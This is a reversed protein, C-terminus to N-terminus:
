KKLARLQERLRGNETQVNNLEDMLMMSQSQESRRLVDVEERADDLAKKVEELKKELEMKAAVAKEWEGRLTGLDRQLAETEKRAKEVSADQHTSADAVKVSLVNNAEALQRCVEGQAELERELEEKEAKVREYMRGLEELEKEKDGGGSQSASQAENLRTGLWECREELMRVQRQYTELANGSEQALKQAREANKKLMDHSHAFRLLREILLRDDVLLSQVRTVFAELSFQTPASQAQLQLSKSDYLLKLSRVDLEAISKAQQPPTGPTSPVERTNGFFVPSGPTSNSNVSASPSTPGGQGPRFGRSQASMNARAARAEPSPLVAFIPQLIGIMKQAATDDAVEEQTPWVISALPNVPVTLSLPQRSPSQMMAAAASDQLDKVRVELDRVQVRLDERERRADELDRSLADRKDLSARVDEELKMRLMSWSASESAHRELKSKLDSLHADLADLMGSLLAHPTSTSVSTSSRTYPIPITYRQVIGTLNDVSSDFDTRLRDIQNRLQEIEEDKAELVEGLGQGQAQTTELIHKEEQWRKREEEWKKTQQQWQSREQEWAAREEDWGRREDELGPLEEELAGIAEEARELEMEVETKELKTLNLERSLEAQKKQANVLEARTQELQSQTLSLQAALQDPSTPLTPLLAKAHGAFFHHSDFTGNTTASTPPLSSAVSTAPSMPTSDYGSDTSGAGGGGNLAPAKGKDGPSGSLKKELVRVSWGLVGARHEALRRGVENTREAIKWYEKQASEVRRQSAELQENTKKAIDKSKSSKSNNISSLSIAADRIKTETTLKKTLLTLRTTLLHHEKKLEEVEEAPLIAFERSDVVADSALLSLLLEDRMNIPGSSRKETGTGTSGYSNGNVTSPRSGSGSGNVLESNPSPAPKRTQVRSIPPRQLPSQPSSPSSPLSSSPGAQQQPQAQPPLPPLADNKTSIPSSLSISSQSQSRRGEPPPPQPQKKNKSFSLAPVSPTNAPLSLPSKPSDPSYQPSQPSQPPWSPGGKSASLPTPEPPPPTNPTNNSSSASGQVGALFRRVGNM